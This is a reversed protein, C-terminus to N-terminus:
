IIKEMLYHDIECEVFLDGKKQYGFKHYLGMATVQAHMYLKTGEDAAARIDDEVANVLASGVGMSQYEDLVAFREMKVGKDTYRWRATGVPKGDISALFHVSSQEFEDFEESHDVKQGIVFVQHRIAFVRELDESSSVKIVNLSM